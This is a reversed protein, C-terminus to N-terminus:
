VNCQLIDSLNQWERKHHEKFENYFKKGFRLKIFPDIIKGIGNLGIRLTETLLLGESSDSFDLELYGPLNLGFKRMQFVIRNPKNAFKITAHFKLRYKNGINQDFYVLDGIPSKHSRKVVYFEYHEEPLWNAYVEAPANIMFNYFDDAKAKPLKSNLIYTIM